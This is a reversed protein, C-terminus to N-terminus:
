YRMLTDHQRCAALAVAAGAATSFPVAAAGGADGGSAATAGAARDAAIASCTSARPHLPMVASIISSNFSQWRQLQFIPQEATGDTHTKM